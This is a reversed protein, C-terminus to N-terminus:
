HIPGLALFSISFMFFLIQFVELKVKCRIVSNHSYPTFFEQANKKLFYKGEEGEKKRM